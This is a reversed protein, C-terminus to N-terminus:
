HSKERKMETANVVLGAVASARIHAYIGSRQSRGRHAPSERRRKTRIPRFGTSDDNIDNINNANNTAAAPAAVFPVM